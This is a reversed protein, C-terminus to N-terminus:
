AVKYDDRNLRYLDYDTSAAVQSSFATYVEFTGTSSTFDKIPRLQSSLYVWWEVNENGGGFYDDEYKAMASDIFTTKGANGQSTTTGSLNDGLHNRVKTLFNTFTITAM